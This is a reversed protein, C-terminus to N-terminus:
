IAALEVRQVLTDVAIQVGESGVDGALRGGGLYLYFCGLYLLFEGAALEGARVTGIVVPRVIQVEDRTMKM